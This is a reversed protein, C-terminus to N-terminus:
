HMYSYHMTHFYADNFNGCVYGDECIWKCQNGRRGYYRDYKLVANEKTLYVDDEIEIVLEEKLAEILSM